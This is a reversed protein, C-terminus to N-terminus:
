TRRRTSRRDRSCGPEIRNHRQHGRRDQGDPAIRTLFRQTLDRSTLAGRQLLTGLEVVSLEILDDAIPRQAVSRAANLSLVSSEPVTQAASASAPVGLLAAGAALSAGVFARRDLPTTVSHKTM